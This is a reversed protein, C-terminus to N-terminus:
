TKLHDLIIRQNQGGVSPKFCGMAIVYNPSDSKVIFWVM